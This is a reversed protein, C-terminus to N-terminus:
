PKPIPSNSASAFTNTLYFASQMAAAYASQATNSSEIRWDTEKHMDFWIVAKIKSFNNPIQMTFGSTIWEAKNGGSETSATEAIMLPKTSLGTITHYTTQFVQSLSQWNHGQLNGWNYGDMGTWDVFSGGPYLSSLPPTGNFSINPSWVWTVNTVGLQQFLAYVHRWAKVFEGAKNGNIPKGNFQECWPFWYGNMEYAFRLFYPHGWTKSAVAWNKISTDFDGRIVNRLAYPPQNATGNGPDWPMWSVLSYSGHNRVNNMWSTEFNQSGDTAGWAQYWTVISVKKKANSEFTTLLSLDSPNSPVYVGTYVHDSSSHAVPTQGRCGSTLVVSALLSLVVHLGKASEM